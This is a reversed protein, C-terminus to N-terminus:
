LKVGAARLEALFGSVLELVANAEVIMRHFASAPVILGGRDVRVCKGQKVLKGAHRRVTEYPLRMSNSIAMMSVPRRESDPLVNPNASPTANTIHKINATRIATFVLGCVLDGDFFGSLVKMATLLVNIAAIVIATQEEDLRRSAPRSSRRPKYNVVELRRLGDLLRVAEVHIKRLMATARASRRVAPALAIGDDAALCIGSRVLKHVHRRVTEFPLDLRRSLERIGMRERADTQTLADHWLAMIIMGSAIDGHLLGFVEFCRLFFEASIRGIPHADPLLAAKTTAPSRGM